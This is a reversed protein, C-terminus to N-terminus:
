YNAKVWKADLDIVEDVLNPTETFRDKESKRVKDPDGGKDKRLLSWSAAM